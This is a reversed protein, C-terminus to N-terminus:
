VDWDACVIKMNAKCIIITLIKIYINKNIIM